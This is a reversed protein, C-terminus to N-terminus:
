ADKAELTHNLVAEVGKVFVDCEKHTEFSGTHKKDFLLSPEPWAGEASTASPM